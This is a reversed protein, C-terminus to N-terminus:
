RIVQGAANYIHEGRRIQLQGNLMMKQAPQASSNNEIGTSTVKTMEGLTCDAKNGGINDVCFYAATTMGWSNKKTSELAFQLGDVEGLSSLDVWQWNAAYKWDGKTRYDALYFEVTKTVSEGNLGKIILKFYDDQHFPLGKGGDEESMYDGNLFAKVNFATNTVAMGTLTTKTFYITEFLGMINVSAYNKGHAVDLAAMPLYSDSFDAIVADSAYNVVQTSSYGTGYDGWDSVTTYAAVGGSVFWNKQDVVFSEPRYVSNAELAFAAEEFSAASFTEPLTVPLGTDEKCVITVDFDEEIEDYWIFFVYGMGADPYVYGIESSYDNIPLVTEGYKVTVQWGELTYGAEATFYLEAYDDEDTYETPNGANSTCGTLHLNINSASITAAALLMMCFTFIKKM